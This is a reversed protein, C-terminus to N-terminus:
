SVWLWVGVAGALAGLLLGALFGFRRNFERLHVRLSSHSEAGTLELMTQALADRFDSANRFRRRPERVLSRTALRYIPPPLDKRMTMLPVIKGNQNARLLQRPRNMGGFPTAGTLAYYLTAGLSFVDCAFTVPEGRAQEPAMFGVTGSIVLTDSDGLQEDTTSALGFDTVKVRGNRAIAAALRLDDTPISPEAYIVDLGISRPRAQTLKDLA